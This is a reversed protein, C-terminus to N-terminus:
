EARSQACVAEGRFLPHRSLGPGRQRRVDVRQGAGPCVVAGDEEEISHCSSLMNANTCYLSTHVELCKPNDPLHQALLRGLQPKRSHQGPVAIICHFDPLPAKPRWHKPAALVLVEYPRRHAVEQLVPESKYASLLPVQWPLSM